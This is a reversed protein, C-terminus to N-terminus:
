GDILYKQILRDSNELETYLNRGMSNLGYRTKYWEVLESKPFLSVFGDYNKEFAMQCAFAILCGAVNAYRRKKGRDAKNVELLRIHIRLEAPIDELSLLGLIEKNTILRITYVASGKEEEWDFSFKGSQGITIWDEPKVPAIAAEWYKGSAPELIKM